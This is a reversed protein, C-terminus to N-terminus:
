DVYEPTTKTSIGEKEASVTLWASAAALYPRTVTYGAVMTGANESMKASHRYSVRNYKIHIYLDVCVLARKKRVYVIRLVDWM